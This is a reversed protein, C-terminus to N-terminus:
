PAFRFITGDGDEGGYVATGFFHGAGDPLLGAYPLEGDNGGFAHVVRERWEGNLAPTLKFITGHNGPGGGASTTGYLSGDQGFCLASIPYSGDNGGMFHHLVKETWVGGNEALRYVVGRDQVGGYYTTGYFHGAADRVLGGYPFVGDPQGEFAYLTTFSWGGGGDPSLKWVTGVGFAGGVTAVGFLDGNDGILLRAKSAAGGDVGGTFHHIVTETWPGASTPSLQFIIGMGFAGGGPTMGYLNGSSDFSLPGGPGYGDADGGQFAHIVSHSYSGGSKTLKWVVGCGDEPCGVYSGGVVTTGYVNGSADLTVGGYPQGGDAGSTFSYLVSEEWSTPTHALRFVTGSNFDGGQVTMGYLAGDADMVLDTDPYEGDDEGFHHLVRLKAVPAAPGLLVSAAALVACAGGISLRTYRM